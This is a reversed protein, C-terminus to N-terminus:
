RIFKQMIYNVFLSLQKLKPVSKTDFIDKMNLERPTFNKLLHIERKEKFFPCHFLYHKETGVENTKCLTCKRDELPTGDYRGTEIPLLHNATRFKLISPYDRRDSAKM